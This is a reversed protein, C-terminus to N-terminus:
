NFSLKHPQDEVNQGCCKDAVYKGEYWCMTWGVLTDRLIRLLVLISNKNAEGRQELRLLENFSARSMNHCQLLM